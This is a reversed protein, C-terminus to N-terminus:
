SVKATLGQSLRDRLEQDEYSESLLERFAADDRTSTPKPRRRFLRSLVGMEGEPELEASATDAATAADSEAYRERVSPLNGMIAAVPTAIKGELSGLLAIGAESAGLVMTQGNVRAVLLARKPGIAATELIQILGERRARRRTLALVGGAVGVLLVLVLAFWSSGRSSPAGAAAAASAAPAGVATPAAAAKVPLLGAAEIKQPSSKGSQAAEPAPRPPSPAPALQIAAPLIDKMEHRPAIAAASNAQDGDFPKAAPNEEQEAATKAAFALEEPLALAAKLLEQSNAQNAPKPERRARPAPTVQETEAATGAGAPSSCSFQVRVGSSLSSVTAPEYCRVGNALPVELKTYNTRARATVPRKGNAFVTEAPTADNVFLYLLRHGTMPRVAGPAIAESTTVDVIVDTDRTTSTVDTITVALLPLLALQTLM